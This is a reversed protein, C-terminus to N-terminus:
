GYEFFTSYRLFYSGLKHKACDVWRDITVFGILAPDRDRIDGSITIAYAKLEAPNIVAFGLIASWCPLLRV